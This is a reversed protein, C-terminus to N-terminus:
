SGGGAVGRWVALAAIVAEVEDRGAQIWVYGLHEDVDDVETAMLEAAAECVAEAAGLRVSLADPHGVGGDGGAM